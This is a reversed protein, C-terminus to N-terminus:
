GLGIPSNKQIKKSENTEDCVTYIRNPMKLAHCQFAKLQNHQKLHLVTSNKHKDGAPFLNAFNDVAEVRLCDERRTLSVKKMKGFEAKTFRRRQTM